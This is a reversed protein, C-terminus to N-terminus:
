KLVKNKPTTAVFDKLYYPEFYAVDEFNKNKFKQESLQVMNKASPYVGSCFVANPHKIISACKDSGNGFFVIKRVSLIDNFSNEDIIEATIESQFEGQRNFFATYVELRRADIMPCFWANELSAQEPNFGELFSFFMIQLTSVSILPKDAGFCFGKAASVGIRLGTYSGPGSSIAVADLQNPVINNKTLIKEVFQTLLAAHSRGETNEMYDVLGNETAIAVSCVETATEINLILAM